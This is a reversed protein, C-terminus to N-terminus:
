EDQDRLALPLYRQLEDQWHPPLIGFHKIFKQCDLRSNLPRMAVQPYDKSLIEQFSNDKFVSKAFNSWSTEGGCCIHYLGQLRKDAITKSIAEYTAKALFRASTPAGIQDSVISIKEKDDILKSIKKIFNNGEGYVWSTRLILYPCSSEIIAKDGLYKTRGYANIPNPSDNEVWPTQGSGDFVYDTSYHVFLINKEKAINAIGAVAFTNTTKAERLHSEAGNVDTYAAANIIINPTVDSIMDNLLPTDRIDIDTKTLQYAAPLALKLASGVQGQHGFLLIKM